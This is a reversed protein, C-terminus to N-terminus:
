ILNLTDQAIRRLTIADHPLRFPEYDAIRQLAARLKKVENEADATRQWLAGAQAASMNITITPESLLIVWANAM